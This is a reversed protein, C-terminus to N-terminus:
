EADITYGYVHTWPIGDFIKVHTKGEADPGANIQIEGTTLVYVTVGEASALVTNETPHEAMFPAIDEQTISFLYSSSSSGTDTHFLDMKVNGNAEEAKFLSVGLDADNFSVNEEMSVPAPTEVAPAAPEATPEPPVPTSCDTTMACPDVPPVPTSCDMGMASISTPACPDYPPPTPTECGTDMASISTPACPDYPPPTPTECSVEASIKDPACPDCSSQASSRSSSCPDPQAAVSGFISVTMVAVLAAIVLKGISFKM